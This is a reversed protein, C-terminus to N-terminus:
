RDADRATMNMRVTMGAFAPIWGKGNSKAEGAELQSIAHNRRGRRGGVQNEKFPWLSSPLSLGCPAVRGAIAGRPVRRHPPTRRGYRWTSVRFERLWASHSASQCATRHRLVYPCPGIRPM